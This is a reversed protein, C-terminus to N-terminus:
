SVLIDRTCRSESLEAAPTRDDYRLSWDTRLILTGDVLHPFKRATLVKGSGAVGYCELDWPQGHVWSQFQETEAFWSMRFCDELLTALRDQVNVPTLWQEIAEKESQEKETRQEKNYLVLQDLKFNIKEDAGDFKMDLQTIGEHAGKAEVHAGTAEVCAGKADVAIDPMMIAQDLGIISNINDQANKITVLMDQFKRKDWHWLIRQGLERKRMDLPGGQPTRLMRDMETLNVYLQTMSANPNTNPEWIFQPEGKTNRSDSLRGSESVLGLLGQFLRDDTEKMKLAKECIAKLRELYTVPQKLSGLLQEREEIADKVEKAFKYINHAIHLLATTSATISLPDM